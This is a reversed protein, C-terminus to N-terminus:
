KRGCGLSLIRFEKNKTAKNGFKKLTWAHLVPNNGIVGGDILRETFGYGDIYKLPSFAIPISASGGVATTM